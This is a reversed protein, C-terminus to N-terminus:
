KKVQCRPCFHTSRGGLTMKVILEHCRHCPTGTRHYVNLHHVNQGRLGNSSHFNSPNEGLSTGKNSIASQLITRIAQHLTEVEQTILKQTLTEPHIKAEWLAEDAYINGIGSIKSQNLLFPKIKMKCKLLTKLLSVTFDSSLPDVGLEELRTSPDGQWYIRGFKRQDLFKLVRGDELIFQVREHKSIPSKNTEVLLRGSMRLHILLNKPGVRMVIYKGSRTIDLIEQGEIEQCFQDLPMEALSKLWFFHTKVIKKGIIQQKILDNVVTQVEPLEPM